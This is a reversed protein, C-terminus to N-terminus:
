SVACSAGSSTSANSSNDDEDHNVHVTEIVGACHKFNKMFGEPLPANYEYIWLWYKEIEKGNEFPLIKKIVTGCLSCNCCGHVKSSLKSDPCIEEVKVCEECVCCHDCPFFVHTAKRKFCLVCTHSLNKDSYPRQLRYLRAMDLYDKNMTPSDMLYDNPSPDLVETRTRRNSGRNSETIILPSISHEQSVNVDEDMDSYCDNIDYFLTAKKNENDQVTSSLMIMHDPMQTQKRRDAKPNNSDYKSNYREKKGDECSGRINRHEPNSRAERFISSHNSDYDYQMSYDKRKPSEWQNLGREETNDFSGM